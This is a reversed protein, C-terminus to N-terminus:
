DWRNYKSAANAQDELYPDRSRRIRNTGEEDSESLEMIEDVKQTESSANINIHAWAFEFVNYLLMSSTANKTYDDTNNWKQIFPETIEYPFRHCYWDYDEFSHEPNLQFPQLKINNHARFVYRAWDQAVEKVQSRFVYGNSKIFACLEEVLWYLVYKRPAYEHGKSIYTPEELWKRFQTELVRRNYSSMM